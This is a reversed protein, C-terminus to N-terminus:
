VHYHLVIASVITYITRYLIVVINSLLGLLCDDSNSKCIIQMNGGGTLQQIYDSVLKYWTCPTSNLLVFSAWLCIWLLPAASPSVSRLGAISQHCSFVVLHAAAFGRRCGCGPSNTLNNRMNVCRQRCVISHFGNNFESRSVYPVADVSVLSSVLNAAHWITDYRIELTGIPIPQRM